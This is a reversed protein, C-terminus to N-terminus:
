PFVELRHKGDLSQGCYRWGCQKFCYGPNPSLIKRPDVYTFLREGPWRGWAIAMAERILHSSRESGENRFVSCNVGRQGDRRPVLARYWVFLAAGDPSILVLNDGPTTFQKRVRGDRYRRASYHRGYIALGVPDCHHSVLWHESAVALGWEAPAFLTPLSM